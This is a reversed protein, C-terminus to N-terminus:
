WGGFYQGSCVKISGWFADFEVTHRVLPKAVGTDVTLKATEM